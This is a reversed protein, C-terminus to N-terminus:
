LAFIIVSIHFFSCYFNLKILCILMIYITHYKETAQWFIAPIFVIIDFCNDYIKGFFYFLFPYDCWLFVRINKQRPRFQYKMINKKACYFCNTASSTLCMKNRSWNKYHPMHREPIIHYSFLDKGDNKTQSISKGDYFLNFHSLLRKLHLETKNSTKRQQIETPFPSKQHCLTPFNM